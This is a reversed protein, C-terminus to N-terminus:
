KGEANNPLTWLYAYFCTVFLMKNLKIQTATDEDDPPCVATVHLTRQMHTHIHTHKHASTHTLMYVVHVFTHPCVKLNTSKAIEAVGKASVHIFELVCGLLRCLCVNATFHGTSFLETVKLM